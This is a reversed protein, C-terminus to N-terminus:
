KSLLKKYELCGAWNEEWGPATKKLNEYWRAVNAYKSFDYEAVEYSSVTALLSLDALTLADGAVYTQNELFTNLFEFASDIKKVKEADIPKQFLYKLVYADFFAQYLTGSDFYLRQNILARKKPCQPYLSNDNKGYKEALYVIIARSEWIAFGNDVLTPVTHQPNLKLYEPKLHAGAFLDLFKKNLQIGLAEATMIVARCPASAPLYYLDM